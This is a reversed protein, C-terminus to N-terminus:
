ALPAVSASFVPLIVAVIAKVVNETYALMRLVPPLDGTSAYPFTGLLYGELTYSSSFTGFLVLRLVFYCFLLLVGALAIYKRNQVNRDFLVVVMLLPLLVGSEKSLLSIIALPIVILLRPQKNLLLHSLFAILTLAVFLTPRDSVWTASSQTYPSVLVFGAILLATFIGRGLQILLNFLLGVILLHLLVNVLPNLFAISNAVRSVIWLSLSHLPRYLNNHLGWDGVFFVLPNDTHEITTQLISDDLNPAPHLLIPLYLLFGALLLFLLVYRSKYIM